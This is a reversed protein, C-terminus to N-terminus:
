SEEEDDDDGFFYFDACSRSCFNSTSRRTICDECVMKHCIPCKILQVERDRASCKYCILCPGETAPVLRM